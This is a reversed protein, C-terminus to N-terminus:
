DFLPMAQAIAYRADSASHDRGLFALMRDHLSQVGVSVRNIGSQKFAALKDRHISTPNAELTVELNPLSMDGYQSLKSLVKSVM